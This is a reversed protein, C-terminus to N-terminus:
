ARAALVLIGAIVKAGAAHAVETARALKDLDFIAQTQFFRVGAAIKEEIRAAPRGM